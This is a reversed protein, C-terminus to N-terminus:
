KLVRSDGCLVLNGRVFAEHPSVLDSCLESHPSARAFSSAGTRLTTNYQLRCPLLIGNCSLASAPTSGASLSGIEAGFFCYTPVM